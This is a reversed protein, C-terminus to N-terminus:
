NEVGMNHSECDHIAGAGPFRIAKPEMCAYASVLAHVCLSLYVCMCVCLYFYFSAKKFFIM